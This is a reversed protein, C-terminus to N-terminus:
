NLFIIVVLPKLYTTNPAKPDNKGSTYGLGRLYNDLQKRATERSISKFEKKFEFAKVNSERKPNKKKTEKELPLANSATNNHVNIAPTYYNTTANIDGELDNYVDNSTSEVIQVLEGITPYTFNNKNLPKATPLSNPDTYNQNFGVEVFFITGIDEPSNYAIHNPSLIIDVVKKTTNQSKPSGSNSVSNGQNRNRKLSM